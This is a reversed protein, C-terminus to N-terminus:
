RLLRPLVQLYSEVVRVLVSKAIRQTYRIGKAADVLEITMM